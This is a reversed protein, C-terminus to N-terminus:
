RTGRVKEQRERVTKQHHHSSLRHRLWSSSLGSLPAILPSPAILPPPASLRCIPPPPTLLSSVRCGAPRVLPVFPSAAILPVPLHFAASHPSAVRCGDPRSAQSPRSLYGSRVASVSSFQVTIMGVVLVSNILGTIAEIFIFVTCVISREATYRRARKWAKKGSDHPQQIRM